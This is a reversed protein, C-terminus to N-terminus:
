YRFTKVNKWFWWVGYTLFILGGVLAILYFTDTQHSLDIATLSNNTIHIILGPIISGTRWYLWGALLGFLTATAFPAWLGHVLGFAVASILIAVWPHCRTKLLGDLLLGRFCIEEIIPGSVVVFLAGAIGSILQQRRELEEGQYFYDVDLLSLVSITILMQAIAILVSMGIAPWVMRREIRGFSLKVYSKGFFLVAILMFGIVLTWKMIDNNNFVSGLVVGIVLTAIYLLVLLLLLKVSKVFAENM